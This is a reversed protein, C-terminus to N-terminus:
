QRALITLYTKKHEGSMALISSYTNNNSLKDAISSYDCVWLIAEIIPREGSSVVRHAYEMKPLTEDSSDIVYDMLKDWSDIADLNINLHDKCLHGGVGNKFYEFGETM